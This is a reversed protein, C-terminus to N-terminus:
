DNPAETFGTFKLLSLSRESVFTMQDFWYELNM